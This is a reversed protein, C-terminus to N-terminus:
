APRVRRNQGATPRDISVDTSVDTSFGTFPAVISEVTTPIRADPAMLEDAASMNGENWFEEM